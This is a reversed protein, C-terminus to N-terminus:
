ATAKVNNKNYEAKFEELQASSVNKGYRRHLELHIDCSLTILQISIHMKIVENKLMALDVLDYQTMYEKYEIGLKKHAERVINGFSIGNHHCELNDRRGSIYCCKNKKNIEARSIERRLYRTITMPTIRVQKKNKRGM